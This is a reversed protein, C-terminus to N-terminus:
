EDVTALISGRTILIPNIIVCKNGRMQQRWGPTWSYISCRFFLASMVRVPWIDLLFFVCFFGELCLIYIVDSIVDQGSTVWIKLFLFHFGLHYKSVITDWIWSCNMLYNALWTKKSVHYNQIDSSTSQNLWLAPDFNM